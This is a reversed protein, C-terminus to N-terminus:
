TEIVIRIEYMENAERKLVGESDIFRSCLDAVQDLLTANLKVAPFDGVRVCCDWKAGTLDEAEVLGV